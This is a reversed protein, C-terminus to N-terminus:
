RCYYLRRVSYVYILLLGDNLNFVRDAKHFTDPITVWDGNESDLVKGIKEDNAFVVSFGPVDVFPEGAQDTLANIFENENFYYGSKVYFKNFVSGAQSM